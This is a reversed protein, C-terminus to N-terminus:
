NKAKRMQVENNGLLWVVVQPAQANFGNSM